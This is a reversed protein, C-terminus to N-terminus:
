FALTAERYGNKKQVVKLQVKKRAALSQGIKEKIDDYMSLPFYATITKGNQLAAYPMDMNGTYFVLQFENTKEAAALLTWTIQQAHKYSGATGDATNSVSFSISGTGTIDYIVTKDEAPLEAKFARRSVASADLVAREVDQQAQLGSFSGALLALMIVANKKM